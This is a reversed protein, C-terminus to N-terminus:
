LFFLPFTVMSSIPAGRKWQKSRSHDQQHSSPPRPPTCIPIRFMRLRPNQYMVVLDEDFVISRVDM